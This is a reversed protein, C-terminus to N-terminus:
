TEKLRISPGGKDRLVRRKYKSAIENFDHEPSTGIGWVGPQEGKPEFRIQGQKWVWPWADSWPVDFVFRTILRMKTGSDFGIEGSADHIDEDKVGAKKLQEGLRLDEASGRWGRGGIEKALKRLTETSAKAFVRCKSEIAEGSIEGKVFFQYWYYRTGIINLHRDHRAAAEYLMPSPMSDLAVVLDDVLDRHSQGPMLLTLTLACLSM